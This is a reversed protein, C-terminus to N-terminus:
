IKRFLILAGIAIFLVAGFYRIAEPRIYKGFAAGVFVAIATVLAYASVSAFFVIWPKGSKASMGISVMQTKDALEALFIAGFATLFIKWDM